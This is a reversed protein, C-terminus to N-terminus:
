SRTDRYGCTSEAILALIVIFRARGYGRHKHWSPHVSVRAGCSGGKAVALAATARGLGSGGGVVLVTRGTLDDLDTM